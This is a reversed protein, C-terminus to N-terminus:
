VQLSGLRHDRVGGFGMESAPPVMPQRRALYRQWARHLNKRVCGGPVGGPPLVSLGGAGQSVAHFIAGSRRKPRRSRDAALGLCSQRANYGDLANGPGEFGERPPACSASRPLALADRVTRGGSHMIIAIRGLRFISEPLIFVTCVPLSKVDAIAALGAGAFLASPMNKSCASLRSRSM